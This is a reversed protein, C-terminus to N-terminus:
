YHTGKAKKVASTNSRMVSGCLDRVIKWDLQCTACPRDSASTSPQSGNRRACFLPSWRGMPPPWANAGSNHNKPKPSGIILRPTDTGTGAPVARRGKPL